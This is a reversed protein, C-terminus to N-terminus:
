SGPDAAPKDHKRVVWSAIAALLEEDDGIPSTAILRVAPYRNQLRAILVPLDQKIHGGAALFLPVITIRQVRTDVLRSVAQDLVPDMHELFALEVPIEPLLRRVAAQVRQVPRSWEPDKAGHSFLIIASADTM